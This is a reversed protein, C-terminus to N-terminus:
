IKYDFNRTLDFLLKVGWGSAGASSTKTSNSLWTVGAIDLHAWPTNEVHRQLFCAATISGAGMGGINKMDAIETNIMKDYEADLPMSWVKDGTKEGSVEIKKTLNNNNCFLGARVKGLSVIMAGTLTALDIMFAPKINKEAWSLLDALVLRGEADTNLVEITKGSFSKIVDGPRQANGDPMNEVLGIIGVVNKKIKNRAIAEMLGSVTAAGGMDWKMDEMSKAPKLSLGGSDFCVGKGVFTLPKESKNGGSWEMVVVHSEQRSGQGVALLSTMGIKKLNSENLIQVKIGFKKLKKCEEAFSKPNLINAPKWVLDRTFYVGKVLNLDFQFSSKIKTYNHSFILINKIKRKKAKSKYNEFKYSKLCFGRLLNSSYLEDDIYFNINDYFDNSIKDFILGGQNEIDLSYDNTKKLIPIILFLGFQTEFLYPHKIKRSKSNQILFKEIENNLWIPKFKIEKFNDLFLVNVENKKLNQKSSNKKFDIKLNSVNIM